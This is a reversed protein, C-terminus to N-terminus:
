SIKRQLNEIQAAWEGKQGPSAKGHLKRQLNEIQAAIEGIEGPSKKPNGKPRSQYAVVGSAAKGVKSGPSVAYVITPTAKAGASAVKRGSGGPKFLLYLIGAGGALWVWSPIASVTQFVQWSGFAFLGAAITGIILLPIIGISSPQKFKVIIM